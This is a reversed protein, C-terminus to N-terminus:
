PIAQRRIRITPSGSTIRTLSYAFSSVSCAHRIQDVVIFHECNGQHLLWYPQHLRLTLASFTTESASTTARTIQPRM